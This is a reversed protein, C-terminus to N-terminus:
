DFDVLSSDLRSTYGVVLMVAFTEKDVGLFWDVGESVEFFAQRLMKKCINRRKSWSYSKFGKHNEIISQKAKNYAAKHISYLNQM